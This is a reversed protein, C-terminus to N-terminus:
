ITYFVRKREGKQSGYQPFNLFTTSSKGRPCHLQYLTKQFDDVLKFILHVSVPVGASVCACVCVCRPSNMLRSGKRKLFLTPWSKQTEQAHRSGSPPYGFILFKASARTLVRLLWSQELVTCISFYLEPICNSDIGL